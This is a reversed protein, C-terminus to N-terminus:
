WGVAPLTFLQVLAAPDSTLELFEVEWPYLSHLSVHMQVFEIMHYKLNSLPRKGKRLVCDKCKERVGVVCVDCTLRM